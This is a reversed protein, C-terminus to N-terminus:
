SHAHSVKQSPWAQPPPNRGPPKPCHKHTTVVPPLGRAHNPVEPPTDGKVRTHNDRLHARGQEPFHYIHAQLSLPAIRPMILSIPLVGILSFFNSTQIQGLTPEGTIILAKKKDESHISGPTNPEIYKLNVM